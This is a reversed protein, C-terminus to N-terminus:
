AEGEGTRRRRAASRRRTPAPREEALLDEVTEGPAWNRAAPEGRRELAAEISAREAREPLAVRRWLGGLARNGCGGCWFLPTAPWVMEAGACGESPCDAIWRGHNVRAVAPAAAEVVRGLPPPPRVGLLAAVNPLLGRYPPEARGTRWAELSCGFARTGDVILGSM